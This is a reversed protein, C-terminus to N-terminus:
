YRGYLVNIFGIDNEDFYGGVQSDESATGYKEGHLSEAVKFSLV